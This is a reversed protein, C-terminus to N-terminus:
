ILTRFISGIEAGYFMSALFDKAPQLIFIAGAMECFSMFRKKTLNKFVIGSNQYNL